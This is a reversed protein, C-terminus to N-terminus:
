RLMQQLDDRNCGRVGGAVDEPWPVQPARHVLPPLRGPAAGYTGAAKRSLQSQDLAYTQIRTCGAGLRLDIHTNGHYQYPCRVPSTRRPLVVFVTRVPHKASYHDLADDYDCTPLPSPNGASNFAPIINDIEAQIWAQWEPYAALLTVAYGLTNSTTDFGAATFIFLNGAIEDETLYTKRIGIRNGESEKEQLSLSSHNEPQNKAEDSLRVLTRMVTDPVCDSGTATEQGTTAALSNTHRETDLMDRTLQPLRKLAAGLRRLTRPMVLLNLVSSPVFAAVLLHETCLSIADIYSLDESPTRSSSSPCFPTRHGYAVRTLVNIAIARLGPLTSVFTGSSYSSSPPSTLLADVLSSAQEASEKWVVTSIRENLAPAVIRRQRSWSEDRSTVLNPGLLGMTNTTVDPHVFGQRRALITGAMVPDASILRNLGTTVVVFAPGLRQHAAGKDHFEWGWLTLEFTRFVVVPLFLRLIPRLPESIIAFVFKFDILQPGDPDYPCIVIPLRMHRASRYNRLLARLQLTTWLLPWILLLVTYLSGM